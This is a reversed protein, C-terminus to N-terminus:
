AQVGHERSLGIPVSMYVDKTLKGYLFATKVDFQHLELDEAAAIALITRISKFSVTPSYTADFDVGPIQTFGKACLRAKYRLIQGNEDRKIKFVWKSGVPKRNEPREVLRWTRHAAHSALEEEIAKIWHKSDPGNVAEYYTKPEDNTTSFEESM